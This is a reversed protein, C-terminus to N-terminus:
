SVKGLVGQRPSRAQSIKGPAMPGPGHAGAMRAKQETLISLRPKTNELRTKANGASLMLLVTCAAPDSGELSNSYVLM